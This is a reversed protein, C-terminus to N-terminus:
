ERAGGPIKNFTISKIKDQFEKARQEEEYQEALREACYKEYEVDENNDPWGCLCNGYMILVKCIECYEM